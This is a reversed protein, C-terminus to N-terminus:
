DLMEMVYSIDDYETYDEDDYYQTYDAQSSARMLMLMVYGRVEKNMPIDIKNMIWESKLAKLHNEYYTNWWENKNGWLTRSLVTWFEARTVPDNPRFNKINQWMLWLQCTHTIWHDYKVDIENSIDNFNCNKNIDVNKWLINITYNSIMKALEARTINWWLNASKVTKQTTIWNNLARYYAKIQEIWYKEVEQETAKIEWSEILAEIVRDEPIDKSTATDNCTWSWEICTAFTYSQIFTWLILSIILTKRM